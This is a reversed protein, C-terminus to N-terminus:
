SALASTLHKVQPVALLSFGCSRREIERSVRLYGLCSRCHTESVQSEVRRLMERKWQPTFQGRRDTMSLRLALLAARREAPAGARKMGEFIEDLNLEDLLAGTTLYVRLLFKSGYFQPLKERAYRHLLGRDLDFAPLDSLFSRVLSLELTDSALSRVTFRVEGKLLKDERQPRFRYEWSLAYPGPKLFGRYGVRGWLNVSDSRGVGFRSALDYVYSCRIEGQRLIAGYTQPFLVRGSINSHLEQGTDTRVLRARFHVIRLDPEMVTRRTVNRACLFAYVSQGELFVSDELAVSLSLDGGCASQLCACSLAGLIIFGVAVIRTLSM